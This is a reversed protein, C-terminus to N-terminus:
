WRVNAFCAANSRSLTSRSSSSRGSMPEDAGFKVVNARSTIACSNSGRIQYTYSDTHPSSFTSFSSAAIELSSRSSHSIQFSSTQTKTEHGVVSSNRSINEDTSAYFPLKTLFTPFVIKTM